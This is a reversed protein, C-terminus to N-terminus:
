RRAVAAALREVDGLDNYVQASIRVYLRGRTAHVQVEIGDAFLLADRLRNAEERTGGLRAPLAVTAMTGIMTEPTEFSSGWREALLQAGEWALRHNYARVAEVGLERMLALAAPAALHASPDRTGLLDFEASLGLDLGWSIVPPHLSAQREPAAWLIGSSRPVWGWKHLNGFYWDVGLSSIDLAIAGPAHAGDALVAVGRARCREAIAALPLLLASEATVHDILLIRTSPELAAEITEIAQEPSTLPWPMEITRLVADRERVAYRAANTVGGYGLDTVLVEDGPEFPFSRLVANAGTTANDVFVLDEGRCGLFAAVEAAAVRMRPREPRPVGVGIETLERLLFRSPQREIEDRIAQQAALVRKPTVGVTGHNLYTVGAELPWDPLMAPGFSPSM